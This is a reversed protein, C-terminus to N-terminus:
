RTVLTKATGLVEGDLEIRVFYIGPRVSERSSGSDWRFSFSGASHYDEYPTAALRGRVDFVQARVQGSHPIQMRVMGGGGDGCRAQPVDLFDYEATAVDSDTWGSRYAIAKITGSM